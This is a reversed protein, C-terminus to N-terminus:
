NIIITDGKIVYNFKTTLNFIEFIRNLSDKKKFAGTYREKAIMKNEIVITVNFKRELNRAINEFTENSFHIQGNRWSTYEKTNVCKVLAKKSYVSYFCAQNPELYESKSNPLKVKVKGRVLTTRVVAGNAYAMVDFETGLVEVDLHKTKVIFPKNKDKVVNFFAQGELKVLRQKKGFNCSYSFKSGSNLWVVTGDPLNVCSQQGNPVILDAYMDNKPSSNLLWILSGISLLIVISAAIKTIIGFGSNIKLLKGKKTIRSQIGKWSESIEDDSVLGKKFNISKILKKALEIEGIKEPFSKIWDEWLERDSDENYEVWKHFVEDAAFEEASYKLYKSDM